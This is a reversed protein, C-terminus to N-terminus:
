FLGNKLKQTSNILARQCQRCTIKFVQLPKRLWRSLYQFSLYKFLGYIGGGQMKGSSLFRRCCVAQDRAKLFIKLDSFYKLRLRRLACNWCDRRYCRLRVENLRVQCPNLIIEIMICLPTKTARIIWLGWAIKRYLNPRERILWAATHKGRIWNM